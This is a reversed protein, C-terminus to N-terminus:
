LNGLAKKYQIVDLLYTYVANLYNTQAQLLTYYTTTLDTPKIAGKQLRDKDIKYLDNTSKLNNLQNQMDQQDNMLATKTTQADHAFDKKLKDNTLRASELQLQYGRKTRQKQFGDFIPISIKLGAYNYPYWNDGKLSFNNSLNQGTYNGYFSITPLYSKNQKDISQDYIQEQLIQQRIEVRNMVQDQDKSLIDGYQQYLTNLNDTLTISGISDLGMRYALDALALKVNNESKHHDSKANECTIRNKEVDYSTTTGKSLQDQSM